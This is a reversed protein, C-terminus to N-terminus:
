KSKKQMKECTSEIPCFSFIAATFFPMWIAYCVYIIVSHLLDSSALLPLNMFYYIIDLAVLLIISLLSVPITKRIGYVIAGKFTKKHEIRRIQFSIVFVFHCADAFFLSIFGFWALNSVNLFLLWASFSYALLILPLMFKVFLSRIFFFNTVAIVFICALLISMIAKFEEVVILALCNFFLFFFWPLACKFGFFKWRFLFLAFVAFVVGYNQNLSHFDCLVFKNVVGLAQMSLLVLSNLVGIELHTLAVSCLLVAILIEILRFRISYESIKHLLSTKERLDM